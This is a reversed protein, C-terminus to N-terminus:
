RNWIQRLAKSLNDINVKTYKLSKIIAKDLITKVADIGGKAYASSLLKYKNDFINGRDDQWRKTSVKHAFENLISEYTQREVKKLYSMEKLEYEAKQPVILLQAFPEGYRFYHKRNLPPNKFVVFFIRSWWSQIHGPLACPTEDLPDVFYKPHTEVRIVHDEPVILDLFSTFGYHGSAFTKFPPSPINPLLENNAEFDGIFEMKGNNNFICVETKFPYILELGYTNGDVWPQCHWPQPSDGDEHGPNGSWGGIDLKIKRPPFGKWWSRYEIKM